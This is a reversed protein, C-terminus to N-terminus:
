SKEKAFAQFSLEVTDAGINLSADLFYHGRATGWEVLLPGAGILETLADTTTVGSFLRDAVSPAAVDRLWPSTVVGAVLQQGEVRLRKIRFRRGNITLTRARPTELEPKLRLM